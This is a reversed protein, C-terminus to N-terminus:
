YVLSRTFSETVFCGVFNKGFCFILVHQLQSSCGGTYFSVTSAIKKGTRGISEFVQSTSFNAVGGGGFFTKAPPRASAGFATGNPSGGGGSSEGFWDLPNFSGFPTEVNFSGYLGNGLAAYVWDNDLRSGWNDPLSMDLAWEVDWELNVVYARVLSELGARIMDGPGPMLQAAAGILLGIIGFEGTPDVMSIPDGHVYAYKHFSVRWVCSELEVQWIEICIAFKREIVETCSGTM